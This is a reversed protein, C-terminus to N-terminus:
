KINGDFSLKNTRRGSKTENKILTWFGFFFFLAFVPSCPSLLFITGFDCFRKRKREKEKERERERETTYRVREGRSM